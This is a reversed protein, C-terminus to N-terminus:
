NCRNVSLLTFPRASVVGPKPSPKMGCLLSMLWTRDALEPYLRSSRVCESAVRRRCYCCCCEPDIQDIRGDTYVYERALPSCRCRDTALRNSAFAHHISRGTHGLERATDVAPSDLIACYSEYLHMLIFSGKCPPNMTFLGVLNMCARATATARSDVLSTKAAWCIVIGSPVTISSRMSVPSFESL